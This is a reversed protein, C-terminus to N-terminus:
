GDSPPETGHLFCSGTEAALRHRQRGASRPARVRSPLTASYIAPAGPTTEWIRGTRGALNLGHRETLGPLRRAPEPSLKAPETRWDATQGDPQILPSQPPLEGSLQQGPMDAEDDVAVPAPRLLFAQGARTLAVPVPGLADPVGQGPAPRRANLV